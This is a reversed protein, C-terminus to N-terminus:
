GNPLVIVKGASERNELLNHAEAINELTFTGAILPKLKGSVIFDNIEKAVVKKEEMFLNDRISSGRSFGILAQNARLLQRPNVPANTDTINGFNVMRGGHRTAALTDYVYQGGNVELSLDVGNGGNADIVLQPWNEATYDIPTAGLEAVIARKKESSAGGYVKGAGYLQALQLALYGVGGTAAPVFVSEGPQLRGAVKLALAAVDAESLISYAAIPDVGEPLSYLASAKALTYQANTGTLVMGMYQKGVMSADVGAGVKEVTGVMRQGLVYPLPMRERYKGGRQLVEAYGVGTVDVRLLAQGEGPEPIPDDELKLVEPGGEEHFRVIKM